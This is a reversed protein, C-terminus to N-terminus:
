ITGFSVVSSALLGAPTTVPKLIERGRVVYESERLYLNSEPIAVDFLHLKRYVNKIEGENDILLHTVHM